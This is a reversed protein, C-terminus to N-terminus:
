GIRLGASLRKFRERYATLPGWRRTDDLSEQVTAPLPEVANAELFGSFDEYLEPKELWDARCEQISSLAVLVDEPITGETPEEKAAVPERTAAAPEALLWGMATGLAPQRRMWAIVRDWQTQTPLHAEQRMAYFRVRNLFKKIGRPTNRRTYVLPSWTNLADTFSESDHVTVVPRRLLALLGGGVVAALCIALLTRSTPASEGPVFDGALRATM